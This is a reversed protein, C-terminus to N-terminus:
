FHGDGECDLPSVFMLGRRKQVFQIAGLKGAPTPALLMAGCAYYGCGKRNLEM